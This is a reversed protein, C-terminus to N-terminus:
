WHSLVGAAHRHTSALCHSVRAVPRAQHWKNKLIQLEGMHHVCAAADMLAHFYTMLSGHTQEGLLASSLWVCQAM